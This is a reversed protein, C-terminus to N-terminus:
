MDWPAYQEWIKKAEFIRRNIEGMKQKLSLRREDDDTKKYREVLSMLRSRFEYEILSEYRRYTDLRREPSSIVSHLIALDKVREMIKKIAYGYRDFTRLIRQFDHTNFASYEHESVDCDYIFFDNEASQKPIIILVEFDKLLYCRIFEKRDDIENETLGYDQDNMRIVKLNPRVPLEDEVIWSDVTCRTEQMSNMRVVEKLSDYAGERTM